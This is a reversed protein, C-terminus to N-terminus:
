PVLTLSVNSGNPYTSNFSDFTTCFAHQDIYYQLTPAGDWVVAAYDYYTTGNKVSTRTKTLPLYPGGINLGQFDETSTLMLNCVEDVEPIPPNNFGKIMKAFALSTIGSLGASVSGMAPGAPSYGMMVMNFSNTDTPEENYPSYNTVDYTIVKGVTLTGSSANTLASAQRGFLKAQPKVPVVAGTEGKMYSVHRELEGQSDAAMAMLPLSLSVFALPLVHAKLM